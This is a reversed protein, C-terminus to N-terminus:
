AAFTRSLQPPPKRGWARCPTVPCRLRLSLRAADLGLSVWSRWPQSPSAPHIDAVTQAASVLRLVARRSPRVAPPTVRAPIPCMELTPFADVRCARPPQRGLTIPKSPMSGRAVGHPKMRIPSHTVNQTVRKCFGQIGRLIRPNHGIRSPSNEECAAAGARM